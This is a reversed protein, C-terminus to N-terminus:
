SKPAPLLSDALRELKGAREQRLEDLAARVPDMGETPIRVREALLGTIRPRYGTPPQPALPLLTVIVLAEDIGEPHELLEVRGDKYIGEVTILM